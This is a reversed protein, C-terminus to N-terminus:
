RTIKGAFTVISRPTMEFTARNDNVAVEGVEQLNESASTRYAKLSAVGKLNRFTLNLAQERETPNIAVITVDGTKEHM